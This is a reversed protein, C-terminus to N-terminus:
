LSKFINFFSDSEMGLLIVLFHCIKRVESATTNEERYKFRILEMEGVLEFYLITSVHRYFMIEM